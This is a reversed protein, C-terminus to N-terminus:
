LLVATPQLAQFNRKRENRVRMRLVDNWNRFKSNREATTSEAKSKEEEWVVGMFIPSVVSLSILEFSIQFFFSFFLIVINYFGISIM